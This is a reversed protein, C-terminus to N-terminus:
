RCNYVKIYESLIKQDPFDASDKVRRLTYCIGNQMNPNQMIMKDLILEVKPWDGIWLYGELFPLWESADRPSFGLNFVQDGISVISSFDGFQRALDAKQFFYCWEANESYPIIFEPPYNQPAQKILGLNTLKLEETQLETLNLNTISNSLKRDMVKLCAPPDYKIAVLNSTNGTFEFSRYGQKIPMDKKLDPLGLGLRVNTFFLFYELNSSNPNDSYILNIPSTLSNDSYYTLGIESTIFASNKEFDPIRWTLQLLLNQLNEWDRKFRIGNEFHSGFAAAILFGLFFRGFLRSKQYFVYVITGVLLAVAPILGITIRDWAFEIKLPFKLVWILASGLLFLFASFIVLWITYSSTTYGSTTTKNDACFFTLTIYSLFFVFVMLGWFLYTASRGFESISPIELSHIWAGATTTFLDSPIRKLLECIASGPNNTFDQLFGPDYTPFKFIFVRWFIFLLFVLLYPLWLLLIKKLQVRPQSVTNKIAIWLLAPRILELLAFNEISFIFFAALISIGFPLVKLRKSQVSLLMLWISFLFITLVSWHHIYILAIPQQLFGPYIAFIAASFLSLNEYQPTLLRLIKYFLVTSFFRLALALLHYGIPNFGFLSTTLMFIWASFPRDSAVYDPFGAPGFASLQYLYPLDDWYFGLFPILLGYCLAILVGLFGIHFPEPKGRIIPIARKLVQM